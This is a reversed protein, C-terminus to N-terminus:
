QKTEKKFNNWWQFVTAQSIGKTGYGNQLMEFTEESSKGLKV